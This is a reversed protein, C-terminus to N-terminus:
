NMQALAHFLAIGHPTIADPFDYDPNHLAPMDTGAGLGVMCGPYAATFLGFDEGWKYPHVAEVASLGARKAAERVMAVMAADNQNAHFRQTYSIEVGLQHQDGLTRAIGELEQQLRTLEEDTWCRITLHMEAKGASIGHDKSGLEAYVSSVVRMGPDSVDNRNLALAQQFFACMALAPDIGHEPEAAHSTRGNFAVIISNVSANFSGERLLVQGRPVGPLNHLAYVRDPVIAQMREDAMVAKAGEGNEEAPQFLLWVKGATPRQAALEEALGYLITMHGDHGCKHSVGDVSSRYEFTNVETIPLADLECRFLRTPGPKGSDFLAMVGTGGVQTLLDDPKLRALLASIREATHSEKGSLEPHAHLERRLATLREHQEPTIM